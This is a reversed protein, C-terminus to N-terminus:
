NAIFHGIIHIYRHILNIHRVYRHIYTYTSQYSDKTTTHVYTCVQVSLSHGFEGLDNISSMNKGSRYRAVLTALYYIKLGFFGVHIFKSPDQSHFLDAYEKTM